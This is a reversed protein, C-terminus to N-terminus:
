YVFFNLSFLFIFSFFFFFGRVDKDRIEQLLKWDAIDWIRVTGISSATALMTGDHSWALAYISGPHDLKHPFTELPHTKNIYQIGKGPPPGYQQQQHQQSLGKMLKRTPDRPGAKPAPPQSPAPPVSPISPATPTSTSMPIPSPRREETPTSSASLPLSFAPSSSISPPPGGPTRRTWVSRGSDKTVRLYHTSLCGSVSNRWTKTKTQLLDRYKDEMYGTIDPTAASGGLATLAEEIMDIYTPEEKVTKAKKNKM